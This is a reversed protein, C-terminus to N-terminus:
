NLSQLELVMKNGMAKIEELLKTIEITQTMPNLLTFKLYAKNNFYTQGIIAKGSLLLTTKITNNISDISEDDITVNPLFRFVVANIPTKYALEFSSDKEIITSVEEAMAITHDIM